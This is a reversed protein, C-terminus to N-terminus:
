RCKSINTFIGYMSCIPIVIIRVLFACRGCWRNRPPSLSPVTLEAWLAAAPTTKIDQFVVSFRPPFPSSAVFTFHITVLKIEIRVNKWPAPYTQISDAFQPVHQYQSGNQFHSSQRDLEILEIDTRDGSAKKWPGDGSTQLYIPWPHDFFLHFHRQGLHVEDQPFGQPTQSRSMTASFSSSIHSLTLEPNIFWPKNIRPTGEMKLCKLHYMQM